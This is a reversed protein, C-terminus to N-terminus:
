KQAKNMLRLSRVQCRKAFETINGLANENIENVLSETALLILVVVIVLLLIVVLKVHFATSHTIAFAVLVHAILNLV